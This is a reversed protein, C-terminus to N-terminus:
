EGFKQKLRDYTAREAIEDQRKKEERILKLKEAEENAKQREKKDKVEKLKTFKDAALQKIIEYHEQIHTPIYEGTTYDFFSYHQELYDNYEPCLGDLLLIAEWDAFKSDQEFTLMQITAWDKTIADMDDTSYIKFDSDTQDYVEGRCSRGSNSRYAILTYIM